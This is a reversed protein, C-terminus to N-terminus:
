LSDRLAAGLREGLFDYVRRVRPNTRLGAHATLWVPLSPIAFAPLVRVVKPEADGVRVQSFGIGAGAVVLRWYAVQDDCRVAFFHRDATAGAARFGRIIQDSRDYGVIDHALLDDITRPVGKRDLYATAAYVGIGLDGVKRTIVDVQEPRYMRVAIDAERQLLNETADSAVLEIEIEPYQVRLDAIMDPLTFTAVFASATVRVTGALADARGAASLALQDAARAMMQGHELLEAGTETLELGHPRRQFLRVGLDAELAQIHRGVTPQSLGLARGAASLSGHEAAGVFVRLQAWDLM